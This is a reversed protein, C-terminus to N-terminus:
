IGGLLKKGSLFIVSLLCEGLNSKNRKQEVAIVKLTKFSRCNKLNIYCNYHINQKDYKKMM